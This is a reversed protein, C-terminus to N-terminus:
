RALFAALDNRVLGAAEKAARNEADRQARLRAFEQDPLDYQAVTMRRGYKVVKGTDADRLMYAVSVNMNAATGTDDTANNVFVDVGRAGVSLKLRYLPAAPARDGGDLMFILENRVQQAIRTDVPDVAISALKPQVATSDAYLPRVQCGGLGALAVALAFGCAAKRVDSWSM